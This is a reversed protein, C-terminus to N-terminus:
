DQVLPVSASEASVIAGSRPRQLLEWVALTVSLVAPGIFIGILGFARVGGLLAFFVLLPHLKAPGSVVYPRIFNDALSIVGAGFATLMLAKTYSGSIALWIAAGVWVSGAGVFPVMSLLSAMVTWLVPNSLGLVLFALGTLAGQATAVAVVGYMNAIVTQNVRDFLQDTVLGDLPVLRKVELRIKDGDRLLFFLTVLTVVISFLVNAINSIAGRLGRMLTERSAEAWDALLKRLRFDPDDAQIGLWSLPKELLHTLWPEWGGDALSAEALMGFVQRLERVAGMSLLVMPTLVAVVIIVVTLLAAPTRRMGWRRFQNLLPHFLIALAAAAAAALLFPQVIVFCVYTALVGFVVLFGQQLRKPRSPADM